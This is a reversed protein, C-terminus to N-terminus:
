KKTFKTAINNAKIIYVGTQLSTLNVTACGDADATETMLLQGGTAYLYIKCGAPLGSFLIADGNFKMGDANNKGTIGTAQSEYNFYSVDTMAYSSETSNTTVVINDGVVSIRPEDTLLVYSQSSGDKLHLVLVNSAMATGLLLCSIASLIMRKM